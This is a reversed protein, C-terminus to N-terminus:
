KSKSNIVEAEHHMCRDGRNFIEVAFFASEWSSNAPQCVLAQVDRRRGCAALNVFSITQDNPCVLQYKPDLIAGDGFDSRLIAM